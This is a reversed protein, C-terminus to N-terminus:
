FRAGVGCGASFWGGTGGAGGCGLVGCGALAAAIAVMAIPLRICRKMIASGLSSPWRGRHGEHRRNRSDCQLCLAGTPLGPASKIGLLAAERTRWPTLLCLLPVDVPMSPNCVIAILFSHAVGRSTQQNQPQGAASAQRHRALGSVVGKLSQEKRVTGRISPSM